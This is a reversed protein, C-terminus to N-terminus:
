GAAREASRLPELSGEYTRTLKVSVEATVPLSPFLERWPTKMRDFRLPAARRVGKELCCFDAGLEQSARLASWVRWAEVDAIGEEMATVTSGSRLDLPQQLESLTCRLELRIHLGTLEGATFEPLFAARSGNLAAAFWGGQGDPAEIMDGGPLGMLLNAGKAADADLWGALGDETVVGYGASLLTRREEGSLINDPATLRLASVLVCGREALAEATEACTFVHSESLLSVDKELSDLLEGVSEEGSGPASVAAEASGNRVVYLRTDMRLEGDREVFELCEAFSERAAEPGLLLHRTHGYFIYKKETYNQMERLARSLTVAPTKLLVQGEGAATSATVTFLGNELDVGLTRVLALQDIERHNGFPRRSGCGGLLLSVALLVALKGRM